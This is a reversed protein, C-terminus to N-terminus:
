LYTYTVSSSAVGEEGALSGIFAFCLDDVRWGTASLLM